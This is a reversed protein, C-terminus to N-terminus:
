KVPEASRRKIAMLRDIDILVLRRGDAEGMGLLYDAKAGPLPAIQDQRLAVVDTVGDVLMGMICDDLQLIIVDTLPDPEGAAGGFAARIYVQPMIVGRSKAVGTNVTGETAFREHTKLVRLEHVKQFDVGYERGGLQFSLFSMTGNRQTSAATIKM